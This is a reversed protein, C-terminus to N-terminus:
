GGARTLLQVQLDSAQAILAFDCDLTVVVAQHHLAICAILLDLGLVTAGRARCAQGLVAAQHWLSAPTELMPLTAFQAELQRQEVPTAFRLLEFVVPEALHASPDLVYAAIQQKLAVPTRARTFDIWLSTDLLLVM